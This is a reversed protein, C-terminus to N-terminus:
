RTEGNEIKEKELHRLWLAAGKLFLFGILWYHFLLYFAYFLYFTLPLAPPKGFLGVVAKQAEPRSSTDAFLKALMIHSTTWLILSLLVLTGSLIRAEYREPIRKYKGAFTGGTTCAALLVCAFGLITSVNENYVLPMKLVTEHAWLPLDFFLGGAGIRYVMFWGVYKMMHLNYRPRAHGVASSSVNM